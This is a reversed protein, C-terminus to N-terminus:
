FGYEWFIRGKHDFIGAGAGAVHLDVMGSRAVAEELRRNSQSVLYCDTVKQSCNAIREALPDLDNASAVAAKDDDQMSKRADFRSDAHCHNQFHWTGLVSYLTGLVTREASKVKCEVSQVEDGRRFGDEMRLLRMLPLSRRFCGTSSVVRCRGSGCSNSSVLRSPKSPM